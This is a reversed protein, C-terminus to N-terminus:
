KLMEMLFKDFHEVIKDATGEVKVQDLEIGLQDFIIKQINKSLDIRKWKGIIMKIVSVCTLSTYQGMELRM